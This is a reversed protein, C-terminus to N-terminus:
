NKNKKKKCEKVKGELEEKLRELEEKTNQELRELEKNLEKINKELKNIHKNAAILENDKEEYKQELEKIKIEYEEKINNKDLNDMTFPINGKLIAKEVKRKEAQSKRICEKCSTSLGCKNSIAKKFESIDKNKLCGKISIIGARGTDMCIKTEIDSM